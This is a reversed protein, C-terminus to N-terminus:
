AGAAQLLTDFISQAVQLVKASAQYAQQAQILRAAEEDLNVGSVASRRLEAQEATASSIDSATQAGQVRAGIDSLALAYADTITLGASGDASQGVFSAEDLGALALANGNNQQFQTTASIVFTDDVAPNGALMIRAGGLSLPQGPVWTLTSVGGVAPTVSIETAGTFKLVVDPKAAAVLASGPELVQLSAVSGTGKNATGVKSVVASAAALGEPRSLVRRMAGAADTVPQLLFRDNQDLAALGTLTFGLDAAATAPVPAGGQSSQLTWAATVTDYALTYEAAQLKSPNTVSLTPVAASKNSAEPRVTVLAGAATGDHFDFFLKAGIQGKLDLGISQQRNVAGVVSAAMQGVLTRARVLDDNQFQLLGALEGGGLYRSDVQRAEPGDTVALASRRADTPDAIVSMRQATNGVVLSRGDGLFVSVSGDQAAVTKVQLKEALQSLLKDREDLLNNPATQLGGASVIRANLRAIGQALSNIRKVGDGLSATVEAQLTDMQQGATNFGKALDDARALVLQRAAVDGPRSSLDKMASLFKSAAEGLGKEGTPFVSELKRLAQLRVKDMRASSKSQAAEQTLFADHIRSIGQVDVGQGVFGNGVFRSRATALDVRQRSYGEVNANAINNGTTQLVVSSAAMSRSGLNMLSFSGM